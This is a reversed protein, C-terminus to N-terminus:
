GKGGAPRIPRRSGPRAVKIEKDTAGQDYKKQALAPTASTLLALGALALIPTNLRMTRIEPLELRGNFSM